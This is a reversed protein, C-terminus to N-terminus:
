SRVKKGKDKESSEELEKAELEAEMVQEMEVLFEEQEKIQDKLIVGIEGSEIEKIAIEIPKIDQSQDYDVLPRIGERLQKARKVIAASYLFRNKFDAQGLKVGEISEETM